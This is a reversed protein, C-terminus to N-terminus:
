KETLTAAFRSVIEESTKSNINEYFTFGAALKVGSPLNIMYAELTSKKPINKAQIDGKVKKGFFIREKTSEARKATAFYTSKAYDLLAKDNMRMEKQQEQTFRVLIIFALEKNNSSKPYSLQVSNLGAKEPLSFDAPLIFSINGWKYSFDEASLLMSLFLLIMILTKKM